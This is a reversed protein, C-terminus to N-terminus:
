NWAITSESQILNNAEDFSNCVHALYMGAGIVGTAAAGILRRFSSTSSDGTVFVEQGNELEARRAWPMYSLWRNVTNVVKGCGHHQDKDDGYANLWVGELMEPDMKRAAGVYFTCQNMGPVGSQALRSCGSEVADLTQGLPGMNDEGENTLLTQLGDGATRALSMTKTCIDDFFAGGIRRRKKTANGAIGSAIGGAAAICLGGCVPRRRENNASVLTAILACLLFMM